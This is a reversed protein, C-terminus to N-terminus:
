CPQGTAKSYDGTYCQTWEKLTGNTLSSNGIAMSDIEPSEHYPSDITSKDLLCLIM